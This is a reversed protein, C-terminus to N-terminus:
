RYVLNFLIIIKNLLIYFVAGYLIQYVFCQAPGRHFPLPIKLYLCDANSLLINILLSNALVSFSVIGVNEGYLSYIQEVKKIYFSIFLGM